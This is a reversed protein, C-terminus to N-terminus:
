IHILSLKYVIEKEILIEILRKVVSKHRNETTRIFDDYEIGLSEWASLFIKSIADAQAQPTRNNEAAVEQVKQGHEDTGTTFRTPSGKMRQYRAISDALLTTFAHGIHPTGNAYYIPTTIYFGSKKM